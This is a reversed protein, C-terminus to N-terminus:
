EKTLPDIRRINYEGNHSGVYLYGDPGQAISSPHIFYPRSCGDTTDNWSGKGRTRENVTPAAGHNGGVVTTVTFSTDSIVMRRIVRAKADAIYIKGEDRSITMAEISGFTAKSGEGDVYSAALPAPPWEPGLTPLKSKTSYEKSRDDDDCQKSLRKQQQRMDHRNCGAVTRVRSDPMLERIVGNGRDAIFIRYDKTVVVASPERFRASEAPGDFTCFIKLLCYCFAQKHGHGAHGCGALVKIRNKDRFDVAKIQHHYTDAIILGESCSAIGCPYHLAINPIRSSSHQAHSPSPPPPDGNHISDNFAASNAVINDSNHQQQQQEEQSMSPNLAIMNGAITTVFVHGPVSWVDRIRVRRQRRKKAVRRRQHPMSAAGIVTDGENNPDGVMFSAKRFSINDDYDEDRNDIKEDGEEEDSDEDELIEGRKVREWATQVYHHNSREGGSSGDTGRHHHHHHHLALSSPRHKNRTQQRQHPHGYPNNSNHYSTAGNKKTLQQYQGEASQRSYPQESQQQQPPPPPPSPPM